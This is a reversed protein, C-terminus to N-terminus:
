VFYFLPFLDTNVYLTVDGTRRFVKGNNLKVYAKWIYVDQECLKGKYYGDWGINVNNSVFILEGL